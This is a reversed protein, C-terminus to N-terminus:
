KASLIAMGIRVLGASLQSRQKSTSGDRSHGFEARYVRSTRLRVSNSFLGLFMADHSWSSYSLVMVVDGAEDQLSKLMRSGFALLLFSRVM